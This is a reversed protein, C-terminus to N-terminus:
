SQDLLEVGGAAELADLCARWRPGTEVAEAMAGQASPGGRRCMEALVGIPLWFDAEDSGDEEHAIRQRLVDIDASTALLLRAYYDDRAEVQRDWRPDHLVCDLLDASAGNGAELAALFGAGRAQRLLKRRSSSM